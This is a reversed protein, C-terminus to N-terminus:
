LVDQLHSFSLGLFPSSVSPSQPHESFSYVDLPIENCQGDKPSDNPQAVYVNEDMIKGVRVVPVNRKPRNPHTTNGNINLHRFVEQYDPVAAQGEM